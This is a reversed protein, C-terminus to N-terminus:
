QPPPTKRNDAVIAACEACRVIKGWCDQYSLVTTHGCEACYFEHKAAAALSPVVKTIKEAKSVPRQIQEQRMSELYGRLTPVHVLVSGRFSHAKRLRTILGPVMADLNLLASRSLASIPCRGRPGPLRIWEQQLTSQETLQQNKKM